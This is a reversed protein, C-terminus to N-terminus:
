GTDLDRVCAVRESIDSSIAICAALNNMGELSAVCAERRIDIAIASCGSEALRCGDQVPGAPLGECGESVQSQADLCREEGSGFGSVAFNCLDSDNFCLDELEGLELEDCLANGAVLILIMACDELEIGEEFSEYCAAASAFAVDMLAIVYETTPAFVKQCDDQESEDAVAVCINSFVSSLAVVVTCRDREIDSQRAECNADTLDSLMPVVPALGFDSVVEFMAALCIEREDGAADCMDGVESLNEAWGQCINAEEETELENCMRASEEPDAIAVIMAEFYVRCGMSDSFVSDSPILDAAEACTSEIDSLVGNCSDEAESDDFEECTNAAASSFGLSILTTTSVQQLLNLTLNVAEGARDDTVMSQSVGQNGFAPVEASAEADPPETGKDASDPITETAPPIEAATTLSEEAPSSSGCSILLMSLLGACIASCAYASTRSFLIM